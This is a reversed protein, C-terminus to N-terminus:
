RETTYLQEILAPRMEPMCNNLHQYDCFNESYTWRMPFHKLVTPHEEDYWGAILSPGLDECKEIRPAIAEIHRKFQEIQWDDRIIPFRAFKYPITKTSQIANIIIGGFEDGYLQQGMWTYSTMQQSNEFGASYYSSDVKKATTKHDIIYILGDPRRVVLDFIGQWEISDNLPVTVDHEIDDDHIIEWDDDYEKDYANLTMRLREPTFHSGERELRELNHIAPDETRYLLDMVDDPDPRTPQYLQELGSHVASGWTLPVATARLYIKRIYRWWFCRESHMFMETKSNSLRLM